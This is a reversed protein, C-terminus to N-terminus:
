RTKKKALWLIYLFALFVVIIIIIQQKRQIKLDIKTGTNKYILFKPIFEDQFHSM